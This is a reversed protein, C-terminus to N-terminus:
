PTSSIAKEEVGDFCAKPTSLAAMDRWREWIQNEFHTLEISRQHAIRASGRLGQM